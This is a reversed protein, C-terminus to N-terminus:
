ASATVPHTFHNAFLRAGFRLRARDWPTFRPLQFLDARSDASGPSTSVAADFGLSRVIAAHSVDYDQGPRGNPYAFLGVRAGTLAQLTQRSEAMERRVDDASCRTLIPHSVTHAGIQMGTRHLAVVQDSRMMLDSPLAAESQAAIDAVVADRQLKPLYKVARIITGIAQRKSAVDGVPCALNSAADHIGRVDLVERSTRRVAEIVTDNFM